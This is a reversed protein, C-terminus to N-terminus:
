FSWKLETHKRALDKNHTVNWWKKLWLVHESAWCGSATFYQPHLHMMLLWRKQWFCLGAWWTWYSWWSIISWVHLCVVKIFWSGGLDWLLQMIQTHTNHPPPPSKGKVRRYICRSRLNGWNEGWTGWGEKRHRWRIRRGNMRWKLYNRVELKAGPM